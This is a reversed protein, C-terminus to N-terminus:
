LCRHATNSLHKSVHVHYGAPGEQRRMGSQVAPLSLGIAGTTEALRRLLSSVM